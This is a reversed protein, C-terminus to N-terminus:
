SVSVDSLTCFRPVLKPKLLPYHELYNTFKQWNMMREQSRRNLWKRVMKLTVQYFKSIAVYNESVGYNHYHGRLKAALIKWWQKTAVVNKIARLWDNM